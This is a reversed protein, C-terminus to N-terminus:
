SKLNSIESARLIAVFADGGKGIGFSSAQQYSYFVVSLYGAHAGFFFDVHYFSCGLTIALRGDVQMGIYILYFSFVHQFHYDIFARSFGDVGEIGFFPPPCVDADLVFVNQCARDVQVDPLVVPVLFLDDDGVGLAFLLYQVQQCLMRAEGEVLAM